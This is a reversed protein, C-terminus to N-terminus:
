AEERPPPGNPAHRVVVQLEMTVIDAKLAFISNSPRLRGPTPLYWGMGQVRVEFTPFQPQRTQLETNPPFRSAPEVGGTELM